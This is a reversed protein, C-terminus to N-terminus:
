VYTNCTVLRSLMYIAIWDNYYYNFLNEFYINSSPKNQIKSILISCIKTTTLKDLTIVKSGNILYCKWLLMKM